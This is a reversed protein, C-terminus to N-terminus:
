HNVSVEQGGLLSLASCLDLWLVHPLCIEESVFEFAWTDFLLIHSNWFTFGFCLLFGCIILYLYFIFSPFLFFNPTKHQKAFAKSCFVTPLDISSLPSFLLFLNAFLWHFLSFFFSLHFSLFFSSDVLAIHIICFPIFTHWTGSPIM